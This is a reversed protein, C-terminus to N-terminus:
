LSLGGYLNICLSYDGLSEHYEILVRIVQEDKPAESFLPITDEYCRDKTLILGLKKLMLSSQSLIVDYYKKIFIIKQKAAQLSKHSSTM